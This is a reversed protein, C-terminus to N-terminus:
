SVNSTAVLHHHMMTGNKHSCVYGGDAAEELGVWGYVAKRHLAQGRSDTHHKGWAGDGLGRPGATEM